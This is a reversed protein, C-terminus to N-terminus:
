KTEEKEKQGEYVAAVKDAELLGDQIFQRAESICGCRQARQMTDVLTAIVGKTINKPVNSLDALLLRNINEM